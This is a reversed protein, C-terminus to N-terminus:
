EREEVHQVSASKIAVCGWENLVRLVEDLTYAVAHPIGCQICHHRFEVQGESLKEGQGGSLKERKLELFRVSGHPSVLVFDPWGARSGMAKLKAATRIDRHEGTPVHTWLWDARCHDKLLKAVTIHLALEKPRLAPTKRARVKRGAALQLLPPTITM